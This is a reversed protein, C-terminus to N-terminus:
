SFTVRLNCAFDLHNVSTNTNFALHHFHLVFHLTTHGHYPVEHVVSKPPDISDSIHEVAVFGWLHLAAFYFIFLKVRHRPTTENM